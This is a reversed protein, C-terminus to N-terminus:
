RLRELNVVAPEYVGLGGLDVHVETDKEVNTSLVGEGYSTKLYDEVNM